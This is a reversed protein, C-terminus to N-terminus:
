EVWLVDISLAMAAARQKSDATVLPVGHIRERFWLVSSLHIADLTRVRNTRVLQEARDLLEKGPEILEWHLRDADFRRLIAELQPTKLDGSDQRQRFSSAAEVLLISSSIFRNRRLLTGAQDSGNELVYRKVLVSTDFYAWPRQKGKM